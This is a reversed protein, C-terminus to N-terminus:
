SASKKMAADLAKAKEVFDLIGNAIDEPKAQPNNIAKLITRHSTKMAYFPKAASTTSLKTLDNTQRLVLDRLRAREASDTSKDLADAQLDRYAREALFVTKRLSEASVALRDMTSEILGRNRNMVRKLEEYRQYAIFEDAVASVLDFSAIYVAGDRVSSGFSKISATAAKNIKTAAESIAATDKAASLEALGNVYTVVKAMALLAEPVIPKEESLGEIPCPANFNCPALRVRASGAIRSRQLVEVNRRDLEVLAAQASTMGEAFSALSKKYPETTCGTLVFLVAISLLSKPFNM